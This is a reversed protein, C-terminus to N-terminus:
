VVRAMSAVRAQFEEDTVSYASTDAWALFDLVQVAIAHWDIIESTLLGHTLEKMWQNEPEVNAAAIRDRFYQRLETEASIKDACFFSLYLGPADRLLEDVNVGGLVANYACLTVFNNLWGPPCKPLATIPRQLNLPQNM